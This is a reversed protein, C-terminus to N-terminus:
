YIGLLHACVWPRWGSLLWYRHAARAQRWPDPGHGFRARESSGMQMMGRYQGNQAQHPVGQDWYHASECRAVRIAERGRWCSWNARGCWAQQIAHVANHSGPKFHAEGQLALVLFVLVVVVLVTVLRM